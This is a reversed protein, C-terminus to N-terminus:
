LSRSISMAHPQHDQKRMGALGALGILGLWGWSFASDNNRRSAPDWTASTTANSGPSTGRTTGRACAMTALATTLALACINLHSTRMSTRMESARPGAENAKDSKPLAREWLRALEIAKAIATGSPGATRQRVLWHHM